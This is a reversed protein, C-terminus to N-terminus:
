HGAKGNKKTRNERESICSVPVVTIDIRLCSLKKVFHIGQEKILKGIKLQEKERAISERMEKM